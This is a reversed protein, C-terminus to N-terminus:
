PKSLTKLTRLEISLDIYVERYLDVAKLNNNRFEREIQRRCIIMLERKDIMKAKIKRTM